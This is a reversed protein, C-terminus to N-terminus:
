YADSARSRWDGTTPTSTRSPTVGHFRHESRHSHDKRKPRSWCYRGLERLSALRFVVRVIYIVLQCFDVASDARPCDNVLSSDGPIDFSFAREVVHRNAAEIVPTHHFLCIVDVTATNVGVFIAVV